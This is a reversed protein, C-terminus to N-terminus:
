APRPAERQPKEFVFLFDAGRVLILAAIPNLENFFAIPVSVVILMVM